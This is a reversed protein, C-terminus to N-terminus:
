WLGVEELLKLVGEWVELRLEDGKEDGDEDVSAVRRDLALGLLM